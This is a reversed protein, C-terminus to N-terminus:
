WEGYALPNDPYSSHREADTMIGYYSYPRGYYGYRQGCPLKGSKLGLTKKLASVVHGRKSDLRRLQRSAPGDKTVSPFAALWCRNGIEPHRLTSYGVGMAVVRSEFSMLLRVRADESGDKLNTGGKGVADKYRKLEMELRLGHNKLSDQRVRVAGDYRVHVGLFAVWPIASKLKGGPETWVFPGKSKLKFYDPGYTVRRTLPHVPLKLMELTGMYRELAAKCKAKNPHVIIIDDCFRMYLLDPDADARVARDASHLVLNAILPSLSGGQPIGLGVDKLEQNPYFRGVDTAELPKVLHRYNVIKPETSANLNGRSTFCRLYGILIKRLQPDPRDEEDLQQVFGDYATEVVQHNIVDFFSQIDCEAVYLRQGSYRRRYRILEDIASKYNFAGNRRFAFSYDDMLPDFVDRLYVAARSLLLRDPLYTFSALCRRDSSGQRKPILHLMPPHFTVIESTRLEKVEGFIGRLRGLWDPIEALLPDRMVNFASRYIATELCRNEGLRHRERTGLRIWHRRGPLCKGVGDDYPDLVTETTKVLAALGLVPSRKQALRARWRCLVRLLGPERLYDEWKIKM